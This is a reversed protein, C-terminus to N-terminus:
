ARRRGGRARTAGADVAEKVWRELREGDGESIVPGIFTEEDRPDGMKLTGVREVLKGV